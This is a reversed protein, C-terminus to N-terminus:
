PRASKVPRLSGWPRRADLWHILPLLLSQLGLFLGSIVVGPLSARPVEAFAYKQAATMNVQGIQLFDDGRAYDLARACLANYKEQRHKAAQDFTKKLDDSGGTYANTIVFQAEDFGAEPGVGFVHRHSRMIQRAIFLHEFTQPAEDPTPYVQAFSESVMGVVAPVQTVNSIWVPRMGGRAFLLFCTLGYLIWSLGQSRAKPSVMVLGMHLVDIPRGRLTMPMWALANFAIPAKTTRDYVITLVTSKLRAPDGGLVGYHLDGDPLTERAVSRADEVLAALADSAMWLGPRDVVRTEVGAAPSFRLDLHSQVLGRLWLM